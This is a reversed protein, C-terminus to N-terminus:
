IAVYSGSLPLSEHGNLFIEKMNKSAVLAFVLMRTNAILNHPGIDISLMVADVVM